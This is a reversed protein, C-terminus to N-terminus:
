ENKRPLGSPDLRVVQWKSDVKAKLEYYRPRVLEMAEFKVAAHDKKIREQLAKPLDALAVEKNREIVDGEESLIVTLMKGSKKGTVKYHNIGAEMKKTEATLDTMGKLQSDAEKRVALPMSAWPKDKGPEPAPAKAAPKAPKTDQGKVAGEQQTTLLDSCAGWLLVVFPLVFASRFLFRDLM